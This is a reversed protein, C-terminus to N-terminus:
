LASVSLVGPTKRVEAIARDSANVTCYGKSKVVEFEGSLGEDEIKDELARIIRQCNDENDQYSGAVKKFSVSYKNMGNKM